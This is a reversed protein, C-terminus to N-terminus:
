YDTNVFKEFLMLKAVIFKIKYVYLIDIIKLM